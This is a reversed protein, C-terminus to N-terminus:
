VGYHKVKHYRSAVVSVLWVVQRPHIPYGAKSYGLVPPVVVVAGITNVAPM